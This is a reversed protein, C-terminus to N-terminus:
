VFHLCSIKNRHVDIIFLDTEELRSAGLYLYNLLSDMKFFDNFWRVSKINSCPLDSVHNPNGYQFFCRSLGNYVIFSALTALNDIIIVFFFLFLAASRIMILIFHRLANGM